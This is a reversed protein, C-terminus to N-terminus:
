PALTADDWPLEAYTAFVALLATRAAAEGDRFNRAGADGLVGGVLEDEERWFARVTEAVDEWAGEAAQARMRDGHRHWLGRYGRELTDADRDSLDSMAKLRAMRLELDNKVWAETGLERGLQEAAAQKGSEWQDRLVEEGVNCLFARAGEAEEVKVTPHAKGGGRMLDVAMDWSQQECEDLRARLRNLEARTELLERAEEREASAEVEASPTTPEAAPPPRFHWWLSGALLALTVFFALKYDRM